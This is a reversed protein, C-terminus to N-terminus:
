PLGVFTGSRELRQGTFENRSRQLATAEGSKTLKSHIPDKWKGNCQKCLANAEKKERKNGSCNFADIIGSRLYRLLRQSSCVAASVTTRSGRAQNTYVDVRGKGCGEASPCSSISNAATLPYRAPCIFALFVGVSLCMMCFDDPQKSEFIANQMSRRTGADSCTCSEEATGPSLRGLSAIFSSFHSM